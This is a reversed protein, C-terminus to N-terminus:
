GSYSNGPLICDAAARGQMKRRAYRVYARSRRLAMPLSAAPTRSKGQLLFWSTYRGYLRYPGWASGTDPAPSTARHVFQEFRSTAMTPEKRLHMTPPRSAVAGTGGPPACRRSSIRATLLQRSTDQTSLYGASAPATCLQRTISAVGKHHDLLARQRLRRM